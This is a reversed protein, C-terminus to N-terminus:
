KAANNHTVTIDITTALANRVGWYTTIFIPKGIEEARTMSATVTELIEITGYGVLITSAHAGM